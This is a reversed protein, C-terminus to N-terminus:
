LPFTDQNGLLLMLMVLPPFESQATQDKVVSVPDKKQQSFGCRDIPWVSLICWSKLEVFGRAEPPHLSSWHEGPASWRSPITSLRITQRM